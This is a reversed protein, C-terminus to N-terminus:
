RTSGTVEGDASSRDIVLSVGGEFRVVAGSENIELRNANLTGQLMKIEVPHESIVDGKRVHMVAEGLTAEFEPSSILVKRLLTLKETKGNYVGEEATLRVKGKDATALTAQIAQLEITDPNAVDQAATRATVSYPQKDKTYGNVLPQRMMIKTGSVVMGETTVPLRALANLPELWRHAAYAGVSGFVIALPLAVRVFRVFRSHRRARRFARENDRRGIGLFGGTEAGEIQTAIAL